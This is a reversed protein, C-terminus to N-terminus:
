CLWKACSDKTHSIEIFKKDFVTCISLVFLNRKFIIKFVYMIKNDQWVTVASLFTSNRPEVEYISIESLQIKASSTKITCYSNECRNDRLSVKSLPVAVKEWIIQNRYRDWFIYLVLKKSLSIVIQCFCAGHSELFYPFTIQDYCHFMFHSLYYCSSDTRQPSFYMINRHCWWSDLSTEGEAEEGPRAMTKWGVTGTFKNMRENRPAGKEKRKGWKKTINRGRVDDDKNHINHLESDTIYYM